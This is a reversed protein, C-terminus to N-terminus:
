FWHPFPSYSRWFYTMTKSACEKWIEQVKGYQKYQYDMIEQCLKKMKAHCRAQIYEQDKELQHCCEFLKDANIKASEITDVLAQLCDISTLDDVENALTRIDEEETHIRSKQSLKEKLVDLYKFTKTWIHALDFMIKHYTNGKNILTPDLDLGSFTDISAIEM